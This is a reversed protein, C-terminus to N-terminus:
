ETENLKKNEFAVLMGDQVLVRGIAFNFADSHIEFYKDFDLLKLMLMKVLIDKLTEFAENCAEDWEYTGTSKKLLNTLPVIIKV